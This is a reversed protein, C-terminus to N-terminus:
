SRQGGALCQITEHTPERRSLPRQFYARSMIARLDGIQDRLERCYISKRLWARVPLFIEDMGGGVCYSTTMCFCGLGALLMAAVCWSCIFFGMGGGFPMCCCAAAIRFAAHPLLYRPGDGLAACM